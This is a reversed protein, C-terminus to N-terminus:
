HETLNSQLATTLGDFDFGQRLLMVKEEGM